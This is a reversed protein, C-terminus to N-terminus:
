MPSKVEKGVQNLVHFLDNGTECGQAWAINATDKYHQLCLTKRLIELLNPKSHKCPLYKKYAALPQEHRTHM